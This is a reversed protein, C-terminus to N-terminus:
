MEKTSLSKIVREFVSAFTPDTDQTPIVTMQQNCETIEKELEALKEQMEQLDKTLGEVQSPIFKVAINYEGQLAKLEITLTRQAEELSQQHVHVATRAIVNRSQADIMDPACQQLREETKAIDGTHAFSLAEYEPKHLIHDLIIFGKQPTATVAYIAPYKTVRIPFGLKQMIRAAQLLTDDRNERYGYTKYLERKKRETTESASPLTDEMAAPPFADNLEQIYRKKRLQKLAAYERGRVRDRSLGIMQGIRTMSYNGVYHLMLIDADQQLLQDLLDSLLYATEQNETIQGPSLITTKPLPEFFAQVYDRIEQASSSSAQIMDQIVEEIELASSQMFAEIGGRMAIHRELIQDLRANIWTPPMGTEAGILERIGRQAAEHINSSIGGAIITKPISKNVSSIASHIIDANRDEDETLFPRAASMITNMYLLLIAQQVAEKTDAAHVGNLFQQLRNSGVHFNTMDALKQYYARASISPDQTYTKHTIDHFVDLVEGSTGERLLRRNEATNAADQKFSYVSEEIESGESTYTKVTEESLTYGDPINARVDQLLPNLQHEEIDLPSRKKQSDPHTLLDNWVAEIFQYKSQPRGLLLQVATATRGGLTVKEGGPFTLIKRQTQEKSQAQGTHEM